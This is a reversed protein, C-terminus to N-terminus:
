FSFGSTGSTQKFKISGMRKFQKAHLIGELSSDTLSVRGVDKEWKVISFKSEVNSISPFATALGCFERLFCFQDQTLKWGEEFSTYPGCADLVAKFSSERHCASQLEEFEQEIVHIETTSCTTRMHPTQVKLIDSFERGQLMVLQHPLM